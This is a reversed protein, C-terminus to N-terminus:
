RRVSGLRTSSSRQAAFQVAKFSFIHRQLLFRLDNASALLADCIKNELKILERRTPASLDNKRKYCYYCTDPDEREDSEGLEVAFILDVEEDKAFQGPHPPPACQHGVLAANIRGTYAQAANAPAPPTGARRSAVLALTIAQLFREWTWEAPPAVDLLALDVDFPDFPDATLDQFRALADIIKASDKGINFGRAYHPAFGLAKRAEFEAKEKASRAAKKVKKAAIAARRTKRGVTGQLQAQQQQPPQPAKVEEEHGDRGNRMEEDEGGRVRAGGKEDCGDGGGGVSSNQAEKTAAIESRSGSGGMEEGDRMLKEIAQGNGSSKMGEHDSSCAKDDEDLKEATGALRRSRRTAILQNQAPRKGSRGARASPAYDEDESRSRASTSRKVSRRVRSAQSKDNGLSQTNADTESNGPVSRQHDSLSQPIARKKGISIKSGEDDSLPQPTASKKSRRLQPIAIKKSSSAARSVDITAFQPSTTKTKTAARQKSTLRSRCSSRSLTKQQAQGSQRWAQRGM